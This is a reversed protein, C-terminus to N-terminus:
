GNGFHRARGFAAVSGDALPMWYGDGGHRAVIGVVPSSPRLPALSGHFRADGFAFVGGDSAVLWYGRGSPTAAMGVVPSVLRRGGMSGAFRADGFAFVGGDSAVLWYGRGSPTAAMAVVPSVLRRGGMSGAFRADGFAFVGGDWATLWYGRGTPTPAMGVVPEILRVGGLSGHFGARGFTFVGGDAGVMWYGDRQPRSGAGVVVWAIPIGAASGRATFRGHPSVAGLGTVVAYGRDKRAPLLAVADGRKTDRGLAGGDGVWEWHWPEPCATGPRAFAPHNWGVSAAAASMFAFGRSGFTLSGAADTLDAAKGWGHFSNGVPRGDPGHSIRAVCAPNAGPQQAQQAYRVQDALTRYCEEAGLAVNAQRAMTFLRMLSPAAERAAVCTSSLRALRTPPVEGNVLGPLPTPRNAPTVPDAAHAVGALVSGGALAVSAVLIVVSRVAAARM